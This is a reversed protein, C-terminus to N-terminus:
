QSASTPSEEGVFVTLPTGVKIEIEDGSRLLGM